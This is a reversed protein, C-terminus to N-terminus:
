TLHKGELEINESGIFRVINEHINGSREFAYLEREIERSANGSSLIKFFVPVGFTGTCFVFGNASKWKARNAPFNFKGM